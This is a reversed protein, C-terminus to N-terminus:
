GAWSALEELARRTVAFSRPEQMRRGGPGPVRVAVEIGAKGIDIGAVREAFLPEDEVVDM